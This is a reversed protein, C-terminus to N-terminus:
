RTAPVNLLQHVVLWCNRLNCVAAVHHHQTHYLRRPFVDDDASGFDPVAHCCFHQSFFENRNAGTIDSLDAEDSIIVLLSLFILLFLLLIYYNYYCYHYFHPLPPPPNHQLILSCTVRCHCFFMYLTCLCMGVGVCIGM